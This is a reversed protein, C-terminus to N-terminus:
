FRYFLNLHFKNDGKETDGAAELVTAAAIQLSLVDRWTWHMALGTSAINQTPIEGTQPDELQKRGVDYFILPRIQFRTLPPSWLEVNVQWGSDALVSREEYGRISQFGGLGFQEGPILPEDSLQGKIQTRFWGNDGLRYHFGLNYRFASWEAKANARTAAYDNNESNDGSPLNTLYRASFNISYSPHLYAGNYELVLPNSRVNAGIPTNNFSVNNEFLKDNYTIGIGHRYNGASLFTWDYRISIVTGKGSVEFFDQVVGSDVDSDSYLFSLNAALTYLPIRYNLGYQAIAEPEDPATTYSATISHDRNFLNNYEFGGTLRFDGSEKTGANQLATFFYAPSQDKVNLRADIKDPQESNRFTLEIKKSPHTNAITLSRTLRQTNPTQNESLDPLSLLINDTQFHRNNEVLIKGVKYPIIELRVLHQTLTQPPLIVRHFNYGKETLRKQVADAAAQLGALGEHNGTFPKLISQIEKASLVKEGSIEFQKVTFRLPPPQEIAQADFCVILYLLCSQILKKDYKM